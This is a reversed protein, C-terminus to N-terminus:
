EFFIRKEPLKMIQAKSLFDIAYQKTPSVAIDDDIVLVDNKRKPDTGTTTSSTSMTILVKIYWIFYRTRLYIM